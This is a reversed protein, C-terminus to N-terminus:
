RAYISSLPNIAVHAAAHHLGGSSDEEADKDEHNKDWVAPACLKARAAEEMVLPLTALTVTSRDARSRTEARRM